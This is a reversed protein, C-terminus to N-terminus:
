TVTTATATFSETALENGVIENGQVAFTTSGSTTSNPGGDSGASSTGAWEECGGSVRLTQSISSGPVCNASQYYTEATLVFTGDAYTGGLATPPTASSCTPTITPGIDVIPAACAADENIPSSCAVLWTGAALACAWMGALRRALELRARFAGAHERRTRM